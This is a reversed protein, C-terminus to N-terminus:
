LVGKITLRGKWSGIDGLVVKEGMVEWIIGYNNEDLFKVFQDKRVVLIRAHGERTNISHAIVNGKLDIFSGDSKNRLKMKETLLKNPLLIQIHDDISGDYENM